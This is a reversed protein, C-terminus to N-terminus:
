LVHYIHTLSFLLCGDFRCFFMLLMFLFGIGVVILINNKLSKEANNKDDAGIYQALVVSGGQALAIFFNKAFTDIRNVLAVGALATTGLKASVMFTDAVGLGLLMLQEFFIPLFFVIMDKNSFRAGKSQALLRM